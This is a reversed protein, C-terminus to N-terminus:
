QSLKWAISKILEDKPIIKKKYDYYISGKEKLSLTNGNIVEDYKAKGSKIEFTFTNNARNVIIENELLKVNNAILTTILMLDISPVFNASFTSEQIKEVSRSDMFINRKKEFRTQKGDKFELIIDDEVGRSIANQLEELSHYPMFVVRFTGEIPIAKPPLKNNDSFKIVSKDGIPTLYYPFEQINNNEGNLKALLKKIFVIKEYGYQKYITSFESELNKILNVLLEDELYFTLLPVLNSEESYKVAEDVIKQISSIESLRSLSSPKM